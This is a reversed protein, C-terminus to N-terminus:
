QTPFNLNKFEGNPSVLIYEKATKAKNDKARNVKFKVVYMVQIVPELVVPNVVFDFDKDIIPQYYLTTSKEAQTVNASKRLNLSSSSYAQYSKYMEVPYVIKFDDAIQKEFTKLDEKLIDQYNLVKTSLITKAKSMLDAKTQELKNSFYDVRILDYIEASTCISILENLFNPNKFKIHINKKLEFGAPIENYTKRSFIKKEVEYEYVPVFSIMDVYFEVDAKGALSSQVENIRKNLLENVESTSKGVQSVGFIAVYNDAKVNALGKVTITLDSNNGFGVDINNDPYKVQAQYNVNGSVQACLSNSIFISLILILINKM